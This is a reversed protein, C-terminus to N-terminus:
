IINLVSDLSKNKHTPIISTISLKNTYIEAYNILLVNRGDSM